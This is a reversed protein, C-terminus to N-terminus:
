LAMYKKGYRKPFSGKFGSGDGESFHFFHGSCTWPVYSPLLHNLEDFSAIPAPLVHM